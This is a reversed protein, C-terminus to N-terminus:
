SKLIKKLFDEWWAKREPDIIGNRHIMPLSDLNLRQGHKTDFHLWLQLHPYQSSPIHKAERFFTIAFDLENIQGLWQVRKIIPEPFIFINEFTYLDCDIYRDKLAHYVKILLAENDWGFKLSPDVRHILQYFRVPNSVKALELTTFFEELNLDFQKKRLTEIQPLSEQGMAPNDSLRPPSVSKVKGGM